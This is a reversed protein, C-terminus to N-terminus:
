PTMPAIGVSGGPALDITLRYGSLLRTGVLPEGGIAAASVTQWRGDWWVEAFYVEFQRPSGDGLKAAGTTRLRLQHFAITSKPLALSGGFGTDVIAAVEFEIGIPNRLRLWVIPELRASVEGIVNM